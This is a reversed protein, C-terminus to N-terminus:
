FHHADGEHSPRSTTGRRGIARGACGGLGKCFIEVPVNDDVDVVGGDKNDRRLVCWSLALPWPSSAPSNRVDAVLQKARGRRNENFLRHLPAERPLGESM